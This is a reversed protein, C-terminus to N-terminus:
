NQPPNQPTTPPNAPPAPPASQDPSPSGSAAGSQAGGQGAGQGRRGQWGGAGPQGGPGRGGPVNVMLNTAVFNTGQVAGTARVQDGVQIEPFTIDEGRKHFTTNEDVAITQTVKDPREVTLTLDKIATVKGMTWTKGFDARMKQMRAAQEPSLLMVFMAGVTKAQDDLAGAAVITDGVHIDTIKAEDRDKRFHTNPGTEVKYFEGQENKVSIENGSIATVTGAAGGGGPGMMPGMGGGGGWGRGGGQGQGQGQGQGTQPVNQGVLAPAMVAAGAIALCVVLGAIRPHMKNMM